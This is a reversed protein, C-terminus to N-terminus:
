NALDVFKEAFTKEDPNTSPQGVGTTLLERLSNGAYLNWAGSCADYCEDAPSLGEHTFRVETGVDTESIEFRIETGTWEDRDAIFRVEGDIVRWVVLEGPVQTIVRLKCYHVGPVDFSFEDGVRGTAGKLETMWWARPNNVAAFVETAPNSVIFSTTYSQETM